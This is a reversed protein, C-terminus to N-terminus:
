WSCRRLECCHSIYALAAELQILTKSLRLLVGPTRITQEDPTCRQKSDVHRHTQDIAKSALEYHCDTLEAVLRKYALHGHYKRLLARLGFTAM